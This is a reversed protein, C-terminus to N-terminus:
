PGESINNTPQVVAVSFTRVDCPGTQASAGRFLGVNTQIWLSFKPMPALEGTRGSAKSNTRERSVQTVKMQAPWVFTRLIFEQGGPLRGHVGIGVPELEVDADVSILQVRSVVWCHPGQELVQAGLLDGTHTPARTGPRSRASADGGPRTIGAAKRSSAGM